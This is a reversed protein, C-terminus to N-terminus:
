LENIFQGILPRLPEIDEDITKWVQVPKIQYYGHVLIHRMGEIVDWEVQPHANRFEITLKYVAEGIIEVHKVFGFFLIPNSMVDDITYKQKNELLIDIAQLIHELREKGRIQERM